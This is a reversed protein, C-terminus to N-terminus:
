LLIAVGFTTLRRPGGRDDGAPFFLGARLGLFFLPNLQLEGGLYTVDAPADWPSGWTRLLTARVLTTTWFHENFWTVYGVSLRGGAIGPEAAAFVWAEQTTDTPRMVALAVSLKTPKDYHLGAMPVVQARACPAHVFAAVGLLAVRLAITIVQGV